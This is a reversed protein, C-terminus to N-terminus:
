VSAEYGEDVIAKILVEDAIEKTLIVTATNAEHSAVANEVGDIATLAKVVHAECRPCMMGEVKIVKEMIDNGKKKEPSKTNENTKINEKIHKSKFFRLRLANTVVCVSSLSMAASGIMPSLKLAFLPYLAGAALPIGAANYFFAWFLNMKINRMVAKSLEMAKAADTLSSKILVIDASEIAIDTGAGIAIGVDARMLAPADNIGDGIFTVKKGTEQFHRIHKEKDAPLLEALVEDVGAQRAIYSAASQNDGTLMVTKKGLKKFAKIAEISDDRLTDSIAIIGIIKNDKAFILPTKGESALTDIKNNIHTFGINNEKLFRINGAIYKEGNIIGSVGKGEHATFDDADSITINLDDAKKRVAQALPHESGKELTAALKLFESQTITEDLVDIDSVSMQGSTVTGTKDLIIIDTNGLAELAAASKVLIGNEAAKGTGAMIAVPTALGLACPCSIVLVTIGFGIATGTDSGTIMWIIFTILAIAMVIPVFVGSVRDALRAIPAKSSGAEDVLKIIQSLTTNEGVKSASMRFTGNKNLTASIIEDGIHKEVPLSEGTVASQDVYGEGHTVIGDVAIREGPRIILEDGVAVSEADVTIEKGNRIVNATKPSLNVLKGLADSTKGKSRTELYKGITVLTLIMASSEFYLEHAYHSYTQMDGRPAAFAMMLVAFVGYIFSASSGLAVLTDMNAARKILGKFGSIFFKRNIIMVPITLLMQILANVLANETGELFSPLPLRLMGGMSIYMLIVLFAISSILRKKMAKEKEAEDKKREEWEYSLGKKNSEGYITAGYGIGNVASIFDQESLKNDDYEVVMSGNLLNVDAKKTGDLKLACKTVNAQCAACTMGTIKFKAKKM